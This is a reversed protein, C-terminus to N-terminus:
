LPKNKSLEKVLNPLHEHGLNPQSPYRHEMMRGLEVAWEAWRGGAGLLLPICSINTLGVWIVVVQRVRYLSANQADSMLKM